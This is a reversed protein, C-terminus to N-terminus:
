FFESILVSEFAVFMVNQESIYSNKKMYESHDFNLM